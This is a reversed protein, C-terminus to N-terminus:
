WFFDIQTTSINKSKDTVELTFTHNKGKELRATDFFYTLRDKKYDYEMLIWKGDIKGKYSQIGSLEDKITMQLSEKDTMNRGQVINHTKITPPITDIMVTYPGLSRSKFTIWDGDMKGGEAALFKKDETLAVVLAKEKYKPQISDIKISVNMNGHLPVYTNHIHHTQTIAGAIKNTEKYTFNLNEYLINPPFEIKIHSNEFQNKKNYKFLMANATSDITVSDNEIKDQQYPASQIIFDLKSTNMNIDRVIYTFLHASSDKFDFVYSNKDCNYLELKNNPQIYSREIPSNNKKWDEFCVHSNIYRTENFSIKNMEHCYIPMSDIFLEISYAGCKNNSGDMKDLVEIGVGIKGSATITPKGQIQYTNGFSETKYLKSKNKNNILSNEDTTYIGVKLIEPKILDTIKYGFLLPNIPIDTAAERIEFHLHPGGSGGTNGSLAIIDGQKVILEEKSPFLEIEYSENKYQARKTYAEITPNFKQLHAYTSTYGNPHTIYLVKGYGGHAIKIRSIYGDAAAYINKGEVGQTKIDLGAHFHNSRIEGFNGALLIPFDIPSIFYNQPYEQSFSYKIFSFIFIFLYIIKKM